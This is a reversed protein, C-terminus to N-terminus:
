LRVQRNTMLTTACLTPLTNGHDHICNDASAFDRLLKDDKLDKYYSLYRGLTRALDASDEIETSTILSYLRQRVGNYDSPYNAKEKFTKILSNDRRDQPIQDNTQRSYKERDDHEKGDTFGLTPQM